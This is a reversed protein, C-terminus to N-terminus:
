EDSSREQKRARQLPWFTFGYPAEWVLVILDVSRESAARRRRLAPLAFIALCLLLTSPEPVFFVNSQLNTVSTNRLIVTSLRTGMIEDREAQTFADDWMFFFRDGLMLETFEHHVMENLLEGLGSDPTTDELVAGVWLDVDDISSYLSALKNQVVPDSTIEAFSAVPDMGPMAARMDNYSPLAHDRGRQINMALLDMGGAGPAGFMSHRLDDIMNSDTRQQRQAALGQLLYDVESGSSFFSPVFFADKLAIPGGPAPTGDSQLRLMQPSVETHGLRFAASAFENSISADVTPNYSAGYVDPAASGILAPLYEQYTISQVIGGVIRRAHQYIQEDSWSPNKVATETAIRNHERVFLTQMATLGVHENARIDGALFLTEAPEPGANENALLSVNRPLLGQDDMKLRGGSFTRLAAARSPDSGYVMSADIYSTIENVQQRPNSPSTGTSPDYASRQFPIMPQLPDAPDTVMIPMFEIGARRLTIDHDLFQGWVWVFDSRGHPDPMLGSQDGIANSIDRANPRNSGAPSGILDGYYNTPDLRTFITGAAGWSPNALNNGSGDISRVASEASSTALTFFLLSIFFHSWNGLQRHAM